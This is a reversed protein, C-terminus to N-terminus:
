KTPKGAWNFFCQIDQIIQHSKSVDRHSAQLGPAVAWPPHSWICSIRQWTMVSPPGIALECNIYQLVHNYCLIWCLLYLLQMCCWLVLEENGDYMVQSWIIFKMKIWCRTIDCLSRTRVPCGLVEFKHLKAGDTRLSTHHLRGQLVMLEIWNPLKHLKKLVSKEFRKVAKGHKVLSVEEWQKGWLAREYKDSESRRWCRGRSWSEMM